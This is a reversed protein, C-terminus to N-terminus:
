WSSPKLEPSALCRASRMLNDVMEQYFYFLVSTIKAVILNSLEM